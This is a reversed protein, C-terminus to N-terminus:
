NFHSNLINGIAIDYVIAIIFFIIRFANIRKMSDDYKKVGDSDFTYIIDTIM